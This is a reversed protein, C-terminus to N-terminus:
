NFLYKLCFQKTYTKCNLPPSLRSENNHDLETGYTIKMVGMGIEINNAKIFM